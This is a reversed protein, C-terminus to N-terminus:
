RMAMENGIPARRQDVESTFEDGVLIINAVGWLGDVGDVGVGDVGFSSLLLPTFAIM